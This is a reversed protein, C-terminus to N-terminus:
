PTTQCQDESFSPRLRQWGQLLFVGDAASLGGRQPYWEESSPHSLQTLNGIYLSKPATGFGSKPSHALREPFAVRLFGPRSEPLLVDWTARPSEALRRGIRLAPELEPLPDPLTETLEAREAAIRARMRKATDGDVLRDILASIIREEKADMERLRRKAAETAARRAKDEARHVDSLVVEWLKWISPKLALRDLMRGFADHLDDRRVSQCGNPCRYFPYRDSRGTSYSGTLPRRCEACLTWWRFPFDPRLDSRKWGSPSSSLAEQARQWTEESVIPRSALRGELGWKPAVIRGCYIPNHILRSFTERPVALGRRRLEERVEEQTAAGSAIREFAFAVLPATDPDHVLVARKASDRESRYGLPAQWPWIGAKIAAKMGATTKERKIENDLQGTAALVNGLFRGTPTDEIPQTVAVLQVGAAAMRAKLAVYDGVDRSLRTLDYVLFHSVGSLRSLARQLERRDATKASEGEERYVHAVAWSQREAYDRCVREQV